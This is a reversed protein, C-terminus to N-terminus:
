AGVPEFAALDCFNATTYALEYAAQLNAAEDYERQTMGYKLWPSHQIHIHDLIQGWQTAVDLATATFGAPLVHRVLKLAEARGGHNQFKGLFLHGAPKLLKILEALVQRRTDDTYREQLFLEQWAVTTTTNPLAFKGAAKDRESAGLDPLWVADFTGHMGRPANWVNMQEDFVLAVADATVGLAKASEAIIQDGYWHRHNAPHGAVFVRVAM